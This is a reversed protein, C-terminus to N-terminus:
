RKEGYFVVSLTGPGCHSGIVPGVIQINIGVDAGFESKLVEMFSEAMQRCDAQLIDIRYNKIWDPLLKM